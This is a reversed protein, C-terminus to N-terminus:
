IQQFTILVYFGSYHKIFAEVQKYSINQGSLFWGSFYAYNQDHNNLDINYLKM